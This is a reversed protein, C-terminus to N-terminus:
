LMPGQETVISLGRLLASPAAVDKGIRRAGAVIQATLRRFQRDQLSVLEEQAHRDAIEQIDLM